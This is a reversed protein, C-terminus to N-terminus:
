MQTVFFTGNEGSKKIHGNVTFGHFHLKREGPTFYIAVEITEGKTVECKTGECRTVHVEIDTGTSRSNDDSFNM